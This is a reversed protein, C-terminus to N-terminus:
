NIRKCIISPIDLGEADGEQMVWKGTIELMVDSGSASDLCEALNKNAAEVENPTGIFVVENWDKDALYWFIMGAEHKLLAHGSFRRIGYVNGASADQKQIIELAKKLAEGTFGAERYDAISRALYKKCSAINISSEIAEANEMIAMNAEMFSKSDISELISIMKKTYAGSEPNNLHAFKHVCTDSILASLLVEKINNINDATSSYVETDETNEIDETDGAFSEMAQKLVNASLGFQHYDGITKSLITKCKDKDINKEISEAQSVIYGSVAMITTTGLFRYKEVIKRGFQKGEPNTLHAFKIVCAESIAGNLLMDKFEEEPNNDKCFVYSSSFILYLLVTVFSIIVRVVSHKPYEIGAFQLKM